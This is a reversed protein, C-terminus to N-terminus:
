RCTCCQDLCVQLALSRAAATENVDGSISPRQDKSPALINVALTVGEERGKKGGVKFVQDLKDRLDEPM